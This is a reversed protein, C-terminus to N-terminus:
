KDLISFEMESLNLIGQLRHIKKIIINFVYADHVWNHQIHNDITGSAIAPSITYTGENLEPMIFEFAYHDVENDSDIYKNLINSNSQLIINGLRDSITFGVIPNLIKENYKIRIVLRVKTNPLVSEIMQNSAMDFLGIGTIIAKKDGFLEIDTRIENLSIKEIKEDTNIDKNKCYKELKSDVVYAQYKKGIEIPNGIGMLNGQEIWIVKDCFKTITNIDHSVILVTKNKKLEEIKRYCKQQFRIDGVSLAEDIILIDPDVNIAVAFALRAFMGSSYTKVPQTIFDGIDAFNKISDIKADMEEKSYGMMTGNLYINEVGTYEPNFGAGLELLASVKGNVHIDGLTPTLVSTIMKLLTSKGSGNTGIIGVVEGKEVEFAINNLAYYEKHYNKKSLSLTEKLRDIPKDYLKYIKSVHNIKIAVNSM